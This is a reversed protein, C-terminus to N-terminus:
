EHIALAFMFTYIRKTERKDKKQEEKEMRVKAKGKSVVEKRKM